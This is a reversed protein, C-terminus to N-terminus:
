ENDLPMSFKEEEEYPVPEGGCSPFHEVVKRHYKEDGPESVSWVSIGYKGGRNEQEKQAAKVVAGRDNSATVLYNHNCINGWRYAIAVFM